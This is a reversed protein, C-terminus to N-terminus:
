KGIIDDFYVNKDGIEFVVASAGKNPLEGRLVVLKGDQIYAFEEIEGIRARIGEKNANTWNDKELDNSISQFKINSLSLNENPNDYVRIVLNGRSGANDDKFAKSEVNSDNSVIIAPYRESLEKDSLSSEKFGDVNFEIGNVTTKGSDFLGASVVTFSALIALVVFSILLIRKINM